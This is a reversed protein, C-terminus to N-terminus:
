SISAAAALRAGRAYSMPAKGLQRRLFAVQGLHYSDHQVLFAILGLRTTDDIPFRHANAVALDTASLGSLVQQLHASVRIWASRIEDLAPWERIEDISRVDELYRALPNPLPQGLRNM